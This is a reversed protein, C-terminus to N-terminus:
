ETVHEQLNNYDVGIRNIHRVGHFVIFTEWLCCFCVIHRQINKGSKSYAIVSRALLSLEEKIKRQEIKLISFTLAGLFINETM